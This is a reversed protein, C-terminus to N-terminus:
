FRVPDFWRCSAVDFPQSLVFSVGLHRVLNLGLLRIIADPISKVPNGTAFFASNAVGLIRAALAPTQEVNAAVRM